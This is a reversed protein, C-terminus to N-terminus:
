KLSEKLMTLAAEQKSMTETFKTVVVQARDGLEKCYDREDKLDERLSKNEEMLWRIWVGLVVAVIAVTGLREILALIPIDM